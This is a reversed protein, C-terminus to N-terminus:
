EKDPDKPKSSPTADDQGKWDGGGRSEPYDAPGVDTRSSPTGDDAGKWGIGKDYPM